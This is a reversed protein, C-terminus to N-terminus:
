QVIRQCRRCLDDPDNTTDWQWCRPCKKGAAHEVRAFLKKYETEELNTADQVITCQPHRYGTSSRRRRSDHDSRCREFADRESGTLERLVYREVMGAAVAEFHDM